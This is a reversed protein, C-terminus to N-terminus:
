LYSCKIIYMCSNMLVHWLYLVSMLQVLQWGRVLVVGEGECM